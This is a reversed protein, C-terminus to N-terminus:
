DFDIGYNGRMQQLIAGTPGIRTNAHTPVSVVPDLSTTIDGLFLNFNRIGCPSEVSVWNQLQQLAERASLRATATM